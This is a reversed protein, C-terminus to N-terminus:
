FYPLEGVNFVVSGQENKSVHLYFSKQAGCKLFDDIEIYEGVGLEDNDAYYEVRNKYAIHRSMTKSVLDLNNGDKLKFLTKFYSNGPSRLYMSSGDIQGVIFTKYRFECDKQACRSKVTKQFEKSCLPLDKAPNQASAVACSSLVFLAFSLRFM